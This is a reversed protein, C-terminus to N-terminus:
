VGINARKTKTYSFKNCIRKLAACYTEWKEEDPYYRYNGGQKVAAHKKFGTDGSYSYLVLGGGYEESLIQEAMFELHGLCYGEDAKKIGNLGTGVPAAYCCPYYWINVPHGVHDVLKNKYEVYYDKTTEVKPSIKEKWKALTEATPVAGDRVDVGYADFAVDTVYTLSSTLVKNMNDADTGIENGELGSFEGTAFVPFNRLGFTQYLAKTMTFFEENTMGRWVPEDWYFGNLLDGYGKRKLLDVYYKADEIYSQISGDEKRYDGTHLWFTGGAEAIIKVQTLINSDTSVFFTNFYGENVMTTYEEIKSDQLYGNATCNELRLGYIGLGLSGKNKYVKVSSSVTEDKPNEAVNPRLPTRNSYVESEPTPTRDFVHSVTSVTSSVLDSESQQSSTQTQADETQATQSSVFDAPRDACCACLGLMLALALFLAATKKM